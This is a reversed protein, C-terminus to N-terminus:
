FCPLCDYLQNYSALFYLRSPATRPFDNTERLFVPPFDIDLSCDDPLVNTVGCSYTYMSYVNWAFCLSYFHLFVSSVTYELLPISFSTHVRSPSVIFLHVSGVSPPFSFTNCNATRLLRLVFRLLVYTDRNHERDSLM